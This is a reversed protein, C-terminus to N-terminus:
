LVPFDRACGCRRRATCWPTASHRVCRGGRARAAAEAGRRGWPTPGTRAPSSPRPAQRCRRGAPRWQAACGAPWRARCSRRCWPGPAFRFCRPATREGGPRMAAPGCWRRPPRRRLGSGSAPHCPRCSPATKQRLWASGSRPCCSSQWCGANRAGPAPRWACRRAAPRCRGAACRFRRCIGHACRAAVPCRRPAPGPSSARASRGHSAPGHSGPWACPPNPLGARVPM